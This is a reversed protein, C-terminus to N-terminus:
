KPSLALVSSGMKKGAKLKVVARPPIRVDSASVKPNRGVRAKRLKVAFRWGAKGLAQGPQNFPNGGIAV